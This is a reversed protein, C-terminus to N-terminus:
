TRMVPVVILDLVRHVKPRQLGLEVLAVVCVHLLELVIHAKDELIRALEVRRHRIHM